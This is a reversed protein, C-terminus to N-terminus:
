WVVKGETGLDSRLQRLFGEMHSAKWELVPFIEEINILWGDFGYSKAMQSLKEALVYVSGGATTSFMREVDETGPEVIFTGLVKVGNRHCTNTWTPPPISILHHSFYVFTSIFQMYECSHKEAEVEAGQCGEYDHYNGAYDHILTVDAKGDDYPPCTARRLLPTNARQLPDVDEQTWDGIKDFSDFYTFGKLRDRRRQLERKQKETDDSPRHPSPLNDRLGDRIPRLIDKWGM